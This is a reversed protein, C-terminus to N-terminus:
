CTTAAPGQVIKGVIKLNSIVMTAANLNGNATNCNPAAPVWGVWQSSYLVAGRTSYATTISQWDQTGPTPSLSGINHNNWTVTWHGSTDFSVNMAFTSAGGYNYTAACGWAACGGNNNTNNWDHLTSAGGCNGNTEIFDAEVCWTHSSSQPQGDCYQANTFSSGTFKPSISYINANVGVPVGSWNVTYSVYGGLLNYAAKTAVAGGAHITWGRNSITPSGYAVVLDNTSPCYSTLALMMPLFVLFLLKTITNKM